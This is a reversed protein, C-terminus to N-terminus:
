MNRSAPFKGCLINIMEVPSNVIFDPAVASLRNEANYGWCVAMNKIKVKQCAIIDRDEDGVYIIESPNLKYRQCMKKLVLHKGFISSQSFVFDFVKDLQHKELCQRINEESNSSVIGLKYNTALTQIVNIMGAFLPINTKNKLQSTILLVMKPIKHMPINKRKIVEKIGENRLLEYDDESFDDLSTRVIEKIVDITNAITGDFDFVIYKIM